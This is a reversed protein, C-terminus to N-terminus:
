LLTGKGNNYINKIETESIKHIHYYRIDAVYGHMNDLFYVLTSSATVSDLIQTKLVGNIYVNTRNSSITIIAIHFWGTPPIFIYSQGGDGVTIKIETSSIWFINYSRTNSKFIYGGSKYTPNVWFLLNSGSFYMYAILSYSQDWASNEYSNFNNHVSLIGSGWTIYHPFTGSDQIDNHNTGLFKFHNTPPIITPYGRPISHQQTGQGQNYLLAIEQGTLVRDYLRFDELYGDLYFNSLSSTYNGLRHQYSSTTTPISYSGTDSHVNIGNMYWEMKGNDIDITISVFTWESFYASTITYRDTSGGVTCVIEYVWTGTFNNASLFVRLNNRIYIYKTSSFSSKKLWFAFSVNNYTESITQTSTCHADSPFFVSHQIKGSNGFSAITKTLPTPSSGSDQAQNNSSPDCFKWHHVPIMTDIYSWTDTAPNHTYLRNNSIHSKKSTSTSILNPFKM